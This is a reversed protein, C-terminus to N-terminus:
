KSKDDSGEELFDGAEDIEDLIQLLVLRTMGGPGFFGANVQLFTITATRREVFIDIIQQKEDIYRLEARNEQIDKKTNELALTEAAKLSAKVADEFRVIQYSRVTSGSGSTSSVGSPTAGMGSILTATTCGTIFTLFFCLTAVLFTTKIMRHM